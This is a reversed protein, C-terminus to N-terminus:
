KPTIVLGGLGAAAFEHVIGSLANAIEQLESIKIEKKAPGLIEISSPGYLMVIILFTAMDKAFLRLEVIQSFAEKLEKPPNNVSKIESFKKEYVLVNKTKSLKEVHNELSEKVVDTSAGMVEIAFWAEIWEEKRKRKLEETMEDM